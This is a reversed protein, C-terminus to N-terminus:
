HIKALSKPLTRALALLRFIQLINDHLNSAIMRAWLRLKPVDYKESHKKTLEKFEEEVESEWEHYKSVFTDERKRKKGM